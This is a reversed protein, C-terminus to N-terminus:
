RRRRPKPRNRYGKQRKARGRKGGGAGRRLRRPPEALSFDVHQHLLDVRDVRVRLRDGLRFARDSRAGSLVQKREDFRFREPGLRATAVFGEVFPRDLRVMLGHPMVEVVRGAYEEGVHRSMLSAVKWRVAEREAAEATRELRSCERAREALELDREEGVMEPDPTRSRAARLSRHAVLDPYRRIPSTFHLYQRLALGFHGECRVDYRALALSRLVSRHVFPAEPRGEAAELVAALDAPGLRSPEGPLDYGLGDLIRALKAARDWPPREHVRYLTPMADELLRRAVAENAAIMFEEILKTADTRESPVVDVVDGDDGLVPEPAPMDLDVAGRRRRRGELLKALAGAREIMRAVGAPRDAASSPGEELIGQVEDYTMRAASRILADRFEVGKVRGKGDYDVAVGQALRPVEPRLSCLDHSLREPLMPIARDPLYVSTGRRRAELDTASDEPVAWSVDAIQVHLRYGGDPLGEVGVADDFDRASPGDITVLLEGTMDVRGETPWEAPDDPLANVESLVEEGFATTLEYKHLILQVDAGPTEPRGLRAVVRGRAPREGHPLERVSVRVMEGTSAELTQGSPVTIEFGFGHDVPEVVGGGGYGRHFIGSVEHAQREVIRRVRGERRGDPRVDTVSASVVDGPLAGGDAGIPVYLDREAPDDPIVFGFGAPKRQYRGVVDGLWQASGFRDDRVAVVHGDRALQLLHRRLPRIRRKRVGLRRAVEELSVAPTGPDQELAELVRTRTPPWDSL